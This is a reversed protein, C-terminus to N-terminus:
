RPWAPSRHELRANVRSAFGEDGLSRGAPRSEIWEESAAFTAPSLYPSHVDDATIDFEQGAASEHFEM